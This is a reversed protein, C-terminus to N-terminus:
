RRRQLKEEEPRQRKLKWRGVGGRRPTSRGGLGGGREYGRGMWCSAGGGEGPNQPMFPLTAAAGSPTSIPRGDRSASAATPARLRASSPPTSGSGPAPRPRWHASSGSAPPPLLRSAPPPLRRPRKLPRGGAGLRGTQGGGQGSGRGPGSM